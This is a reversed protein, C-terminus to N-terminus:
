ARKAPKKRDTAALVVGLALLFVGGAAESSPDITSGFVLSFGWETWKFTVSLGTTGVTLQTSHANSGKFEGPPPTATVTVLGANAPLQISVMGSSDTVGGGIRTGTADTVTVPTNIVPDPLGNSPLQSICTVQLTVFAPPPPPVSTGTYTGTVTYSFGNTVYVTLDVPTTFGTLDSWHIVHSTDGTVTITFTGFGSGAQNGDVYITPVPSVGTTSGVGSQSTTITITGTPIVGLTVQVSETLTTGGATATATITLIDPTSPAATESLITHADGNSDTTSQTPSLTAYLGNGIGTWQVSVGSLLKGNQSVVVTIQAAQGPELAGADTTISMQPPSSTGGSTTTQSGSGTTTQGGSPTTTQSGSPTTTASPVCVGNQLVYGTPCPNTSTSAVYVGQVTATKRDLVTVPVPAPATYGTLSGFSVSHSGAPLTVNASGQSTAVGDIYIEGALAGGGQAVTTVILNGSGGSTAYSNAADFLLFLAVLILAVGVKSKSNM